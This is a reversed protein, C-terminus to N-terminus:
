PLSFVQRSISRMSGRSRAAPGTDIWSNPSSGAMIREAAAWTARAPVSAISMLMPQGTGFTRLVPAPASSSASGSRATDTARAAASPATLPAPRSGTVTFSREPRCATRWSM